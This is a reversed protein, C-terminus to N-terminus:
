HGDAAEEKHSSELQRSLAALGRHLHVRVTSASCGLAEGIEDAAWGDVHRLVVCARQRPSLLALARDLEDDGGVFCPAVAVEADALSTDRAARDAARVADRIAARRVWAGPNDYRRLRRWRAMAKVFADQSISEAEARDGIIPLVAYVTSSYQDAFFSAFDSDGGM